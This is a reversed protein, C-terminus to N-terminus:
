RGGGFAPVDVRVIERDAQVLEPSTNTETYGDAIARAEDESDAEVHYAISETVEYTAM